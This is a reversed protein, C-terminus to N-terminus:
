TNLLMMRFLTGYDPFLRPKFIPNPISAKCVQKMNATNM